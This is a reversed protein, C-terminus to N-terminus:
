EPLWRHPPHGTGLFARLHAAPRRLSRLRHEARPRHRGAPMVTDARGTCDLPLFSRGFCPWPRLGDPSVCSCYPTPVSWLRYSATPRKGLCDRSSTDGCLHSSFQRLQSPELLFQLRHLVPKVCSPVEHILLWVQLLPSRQCPSPHAPM